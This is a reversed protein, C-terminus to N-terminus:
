GGCNDSLCDEPTQGAITDCTSPGVPAPGSLFIYNATYVPDAADHTSDGNVDCAAECNASPGSKFLEALSWVIDAINVITDGNCDGNIFPNTTTGTFQLSGEVGDAPLSGGGVVVVNSVPPSGLGSDMTLPSSTSGEVGALAGAVGEYDVNAVEIASDFQLVVGGTFSYVVGMTWGNSFTNTEAFDATFPLTVNVATPSVLADDNAFGMSFGQTDNPFVGGLASNDVETISFGANVSVGGIGAGSPYNTSSDGAVYTFEPDPVGIVDLVGGVQSPALSAGNVVIVTAVPPAGLTNCFEIASQGEAVGQYDVTLLEFGSVDAVVACGTFCLVVGQTAGEPFIGIQNFDPASGNKATETDAGSNAANVTAIATDNCVGFSWGAIDQGSNDMTMSLTGSGGLPASGSGANFTAEQAFGGGNLAFLLVLATSTVFFRNKM